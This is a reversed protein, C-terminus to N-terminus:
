NTLCSSPKEFINKGIAMVFILMMIASGQNSQVILDQSLGDYTTHTQVLHVVHFLYTTGVLAWNYWRLKGTYLEGKPHSFNKRDEQAYWILVWHLIQHLVYLLWVVARTLANAEDRPLQWYYWRAYCDVVM